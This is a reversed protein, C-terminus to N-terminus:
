VKSLYTGILVGISFFVTWKSAVVMSWLIRDNWTQSFHAFNRKSRGGTTTYYVYSLRALFFLIYATTIELLTM